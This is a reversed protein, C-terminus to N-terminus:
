NQHIVTSQSQVSPSTKSDKARTQVGQTQPQKAKIGEGRHGKGEGKAGM